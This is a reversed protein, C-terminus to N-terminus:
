ERWGISSYKSKWWKRIFIFTPLASFVLYSIITAWVVGSVGIVNLLFIKLPVVSISVLTATVLQFRVMNHSNQFMAAAMGGADVVKWLGLGLLLLFSPTVAHGVWLRIISPGAVILILSFLAAFGVATFFSWILTRKVWVNDGRARAEGYAPWLPALGMAAALAIINFLQEPVAYQTVASADIVQAIIISNSFLIVSGAIQLGLFLAGTNVLRAMVDRSVAIFAPAIDPQLRGFFVISNLIATGIPAGVFALVLWPLGAELRIAIVISILAFTSAACHWLNAMFGRQLGMQVKWIIGAPATLAVCAIIIVFAPGAERRALDSNVNLIAYWPVYRYVAAVLVLIAMAIVTLIFFGSSVCRRIAQRDGRGYAGSVENLIGNGIGLDAFSLMALFSSMTIWMGYREPGLYHLTLPVSILLTATAIIKSIISTVYSLVILRHRENSRGQPTAIDFPHLRLLLFVSRARSAVAGIMGSKTDM